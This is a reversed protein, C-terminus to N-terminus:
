TSPSASIAAVGRTPHDLPGKTRIIEMSLEITRLITHLAMRHNAQDVAHLQTEAVTESILRNLGNGRDNIDTHMRIIRMQAHNRASQVLKNDM